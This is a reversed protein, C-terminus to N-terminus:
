NNLIHAKIFERGSGSKLYREFKIAKQKSDKGIFTSYYILVWHDKRSTYNSQKLEHQIYRWNLNHTYGIYITKDILCQLLYVHYAYSETKM